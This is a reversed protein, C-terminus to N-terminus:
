EYVCEIIPKLPHGDRSLREYNIRVRKGLINEPSVYSLRQEHSLGSGAWCTTNDDLRIHLSGIMHSYDREGFCTDVVVGEADLTSKLKLLSRVRNEKKDTQAYPEVPNRIMAGEYGLQLFKSHLHKVHQHSLVLHTPVACVAAYNHSAIHRGVCGYRFGFPADAVVDYCYFSLSTEDPHPVDSNCRVRSNIDQLRMEHIYLEGDLVLEDLGLAHIAERIHVLRNPAFEVGDRTVLTKSGFALCRIGDLKPQVWMFSHDFDDSGEYTHALMPRIRQTM